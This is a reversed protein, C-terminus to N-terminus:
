MLFFSLQSRHERFDVDAEASSKIDQTLYVNTYTLVIAETLDQIAVSTICFGIYNYSQYWPWEITNQKGSQNLTKYTIQIQTDRGLPHIQFKLVPSCIIDSVSIYMYM